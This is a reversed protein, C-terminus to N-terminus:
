LVMKTISYQTYTEQRKKWEQRDQARRVWDRRTTPHRGDFVVTLTAGTILRREVVRRTCRWEDMRAIFERMVHSKNLM